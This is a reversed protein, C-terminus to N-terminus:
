WTSGMSHAGVMMPEMDESVEGCGDGDGKTVVAGDMGSANAVDMNAHLGVLFPVVGDQLIDQKDWVQVAVQEWDCMDGPMSSVDLKNTLSAVDQILLSIEGAFAV